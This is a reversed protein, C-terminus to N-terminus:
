GLSLFWISLQFAMVDVSRACQNCESEPIVDGAKGEPQISVSCMLQKTDQSLMWIIVPCSPNRFLRSAARLSANTVVFCVLSEQYIAKLPKPLLSVSVYSDRLFLSVRNHEYILPRTKVLALCYTVRM